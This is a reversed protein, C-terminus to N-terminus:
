SSAAATIQKWSLALSSKEMGSFVREPASDYEQDTILRGSFDRCVTSDQSGTGSYTVTKSALTRFQFCGDLLFFCRYEFYYRSAGDRTMDECVYYRIDRQSDYFCPLADLLIEPWAEGEGLDDACKVLGTFLPNVEWVSVSTYVGSGQTSATLVELRGNANLDAIAYFWDGSSLDSPTWQSRKKEILKRQGKESLLPEPTRPELLSSATEISFMETMPLAAASLMAPSACGALLVLALILCLLAPARRFRRVRSSEHSKM